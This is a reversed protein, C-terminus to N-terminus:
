PLEPNTTPCPHQVLGRNTIGLVIRKHYSPRVAISLRSEKIVCKALALRLTKLKQVRSLVSHNQEKLAPKLSAIITPYKQCKTSFM